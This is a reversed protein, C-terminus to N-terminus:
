SPYTQNPQEKSTGLHSGSYHFAYIQFCIHLKPFEVSSRLTNKKFHHLMGLAGFREGTFSPLWSRRDSMTTPEFLLYKCEPTMSHPWGELVWFCQRMWREYISGTHFELMDSVFLTGPIRPKDKLNKAAMLIECPDHAVEVFNIVHTEM